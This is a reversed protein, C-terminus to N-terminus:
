YWLVSRGYSENDSLPQRYVLYDSKMQPNGGKKFLVLDVVGTMGSLRMATSLDAADKTRWIMQNGDEVLGAAIINWSDNQPKSNGYNGSGINSVIGKASPAFSVGLENKVSEDLTIDWSKTVTKALTAANTADLKVTQLNVIKSDSGKKLGIRVEDNPKLKEFEGLIEQLNRVENDNVKEITYNLYSKLGEAPSGDVVFAITPNGTSIGDEDTYESLELGLFARKVLGNNEIIENVLRQSLAGELAFNIQPQWIAQQGRKAFAIQSNIGVVEGKEDILPGGSNGWIVTATTQLFGFKGTLGGRVRNKASIIGESVSYPYEGLPNGIAFVNEGIRAESTRFNLTQMENGPNNLLELVAIDYFSDGGILKAEYKKRNISYVYLSGSKDSAEEVVHANTVVYNKGNKKVLFGSGSGQAGTLDLMKTYAMESAAGRFGMSRKGIETEYVAVTVVGSIAKELMDSTNQGIANLSCLTLLTCGVLLRKM